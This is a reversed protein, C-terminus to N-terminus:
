RTSLDHYTPYKLECPGKWSKVFCAVEYSFVVGRPSKAIRPVKVAQEPQDKGEAINSSEDCLEESGAGEEYCDKRRKCNHGEECGEGALHFQTENVSVSSVEPPGEEKVQETYM